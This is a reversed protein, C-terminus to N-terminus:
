IGRKKKLLKIISEPDDLLAKTETDLEESSNEEEATNQMLMSKSRQEAESALKEMEKAEFLMEMTNIRSSEIKFLYEDAEAVRGAYSEEYQEEIGWFCREIETAISIGTDREIEWLEDMYTLATRHANRNKAPYEATLSKFRISDRIYSYYEIFGAHDSSYMLEDYLGEMQDYKKIIDSIYYNNGSSDYARCTLIIGDESFVTCINFGNSAKNIIKTFAISFELPDLISNRTAVVKCPILGRKAEKHFETFVTIDGVASIFEIEQRTYIEDKNGNLCVFREFTGVYLTSKDILLGTPLLLEAVTDVSYYEYALLVFEDCADAEKSWDRRMDGDSILYRTM